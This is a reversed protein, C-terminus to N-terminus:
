GFKRVGHRTRASIHDTIAEEMAERDRVSIENTSIGGPFSIELHIYLDALKSKRLLRVISAGYQGALFGRRSIHRISQM